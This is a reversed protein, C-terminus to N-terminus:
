KPGSYEKMHIQTNYVSAADQNRRKERASSIHRRRQVRALSASIPRDMPSPIRPRPKPEEGQQQM